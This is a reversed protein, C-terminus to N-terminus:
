HDEAPSASAFSSSALAQRIPIRWALPRALRDGCARSPIRPETRPRDVSRPAAPSEMACRDEEGVRQRRSPASEEEDDWQVARAGALLLPADLTTFDIALAFVLSLFLLRRMVAM